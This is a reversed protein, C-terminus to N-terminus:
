EVILSGHTYTDLNMVDACEQFCSPMVEHKARIVKAANHRDTHSQMSLAICLSHKAHLEDHRKDLSQSKAHMQAITLGKNPTGRKVEKTAKELEKTSREMEMTLKQQAEATEKLCVSHRRVEDCLRLLYRCESAEDKLTAAVVGTDEGFVDQPLCFLVALILCRKM